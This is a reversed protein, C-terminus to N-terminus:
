RLILVIFLSARKFPVFVCKEFIFAYCPLIARFLMEIEKSHYLLYEKAWLSCKGQGFSFNNICVIMEYVIFIPRDWSHISTWTQSLGDTKGWLKEPLIGQITQLSKGQQSSDIWSCSYKEHEEHLPQIVISLDDLMSFHGSLFLLLLM